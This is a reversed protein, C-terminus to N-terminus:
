EKKKNIIAIIIGALASLVSGIFTLYMKLNERKEQKDALQADKLEKDKLEKIENMLADREKTVRELEKSTEIKNPASIMRDRLMELRHDIQVKKLVLATHQPHTATAAVDRKELAVTRTMTIFQAAGLVALIIAIATFIKVKKM